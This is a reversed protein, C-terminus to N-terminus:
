RTGLRSRTGRIRRTRARGPMGTASAPATWPSADLGSACAPRPDATFDGAVIVHVSRTGVLEEVFRAAAVAQLERELEFDLQWNPLHNVFLLPGLPPPAPIEVVLTTAAFDETRPTVHLDVERVEGLPWRSAISAGQGAEVGQTGPERYRQYAIHFSPGLLDLVQDYEDTRIAEQFAVLDPQLERLGDVLVARRDTWAGRRGWLNLTLVRM